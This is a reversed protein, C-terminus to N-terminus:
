KLVWDRDSRYGIEVSSSCLRVIYKTDTLDLGIAILRERYEPFFALFQPITLEVFDLSTKKKM